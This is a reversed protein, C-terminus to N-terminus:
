QQSPVSFFLLAQSPQVHAWDEYAVCTHLEKKGYSGVERQLFTKRLQMDYPVRSDMSNTTRHAMISRAIAMGEVLSLFFQLWDRSPRKRTGRKLGGGNRQKLSNIGRIKAKSQSATTIVETTLKITYVLTITSSFSFLSEHLWHLTRKFSILVTQNWPLGTMAAPIIM